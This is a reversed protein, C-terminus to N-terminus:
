RTGLRVPSSGFVLWTFCLALVAYVALAVMLMTSPGHTTQQKALALAGTVFHACNGISVPRAYIGGIVSDKATWNTLAFAVYMAGLLQIVVPLPQVAPAGVSALLEEPAFSAAIGAFGLAMSSATMLLRTNV